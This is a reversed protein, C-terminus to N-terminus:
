GAHREDDQGEAILTGIRQGTVIGSMMRVCRSAWNPWAPTSVSRLPMPAANRSRSRTKLRTLKPRQQRSVGWRRTSVGRLAAIRDPDALLGRAKAVMDRAMDGFRFDRREAFGRAAAEPLPYDGAMDKARERSLTRVLKSQDAFGDRGYHLQV